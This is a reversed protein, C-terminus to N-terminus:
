LLCKIYVLVTSGLPGSVLTCQLSGRGASRLENYGNNKIFLINVYEQTSMDKSSSNQSLRGTAPTIKKSLIKIYKYINKLNEERGKPLLSSPIIPSGRYDGEDM